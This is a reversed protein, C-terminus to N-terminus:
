KDNYIILGKVCIYYQAGEIPSKDSLDPLAFVRKDGAIFAALEPYDSSKLLQGECPLYVDKLLDQDPTEFLVIEGLYCSTPGGYYDQPDRLVEPIKGIVFAIDDAVARPTAGVTSFFGIKNIYYPIDNGLQSKTYDPLNFYTFGPDVGYSMGMLAFLPMNNRVDLKHGDCMTLSGASISAGEPMYIPVIEGIYKGEDEVTAAVSKSPFFQYRVVQDLNVASGTLLSPNVAAQIGAALLLAAAVGAIFLLVSKKDIKFRSKPKDKLTTQNENM